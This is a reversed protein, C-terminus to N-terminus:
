GPTIYASMAATIEHICGGYQTQFVPIGQAGGGCGRHSKFEKQGAEPTRRTVLLCSFRKDTITTNKQM